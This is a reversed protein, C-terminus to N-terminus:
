ICYNLIRSFIFPMRAIKVCFFHFLGDRISLNSGGYVLVLCVLKYINNLVVIEPKKKKKM